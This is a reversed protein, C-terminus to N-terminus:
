FHREEAWTHIYAEQIPKKKYKTRKDPKIHGQRDQMHRCKKWAQKKAGLIWQERPRGVRKLPTNWNRISNPKFTVKRMPDNNDARIVHGLLKTQRHKYDESFAKLQKRYPGMVKATEWTTDEKIWLEQLVELTHQEELTRAENAATQKTSEQEKPTNPAGEGHEDPRMGEQKPWYSSRIVGSSNGRHPVLNGREILDEYTEKYLWKDEDVRKDEETRLDKKRGRQTHTFRPMSHKASRNPKGESLYRSALDFLHANTASRDWFTHKKGLIQRIGRIQFADIRKLEAKGVQATELGYLLKSKIIADYALLQWRKSANTAKWYTQLRKWTITVQQMQYTIEEKISGRKNLRNGLYMASEVGKMKHAQPQTGLRQQKNQPTNMNLNVCKDKNLTLGYKLSIKDIHELIEEIGEMTKNFVITDDAYFVMDFDLNPLRNGKATTSLEDLVDAEICTMVLVFLYPSLPCGQRIGSRQKKKGSKGFEDETYFTAKEYGDRLANIIKDDIGMRQLAQGLADHDVKDFAKEWDLLTMYLAGGTKEAYDQIRRIIYIAQATSKAPRFGYQAQSVIDEVETQIRKRILMMYIKYFGGLLSIPRYNEAKCTEGKKYITAVRAHYLDDPSTETEWWHNITALLMRRNDMGLWKILETVIGDPGPAKGKKMLQIAETLEAVTFPARQRQKSMETEERTKNKRIPTTSIHRKNGDQTPNSWHSNELYDAIAEARQKLPVLTGKRNKMQIYKPTFKGKLTKIAKWLTKKHKDEKNERFQELLHDRKDKKAAKKIDKQLQSINHGRQKDENGEETPCAKGETTPATVSTGCSKCKGENELASQEGAKAGCIKCEVYEGTVIHDKQLTQGLITDGQKWMVRPGKKHAFISNTRNQERTHTNRAKSQETQKQQQQEASLKDLREIKEWTQKSIYDKRKGAPIRELHAEAATQIAEIWQQLSPKVHEEHAEEYIDTDPTQPQAEAGESPTHPVSDPRHQGTRHKEWRSAINDGLLIQDYNIERTIETPTTPCYHGYRALEERRQEEERTLALTFPSEPENQENYQRITEWKEKHQSV